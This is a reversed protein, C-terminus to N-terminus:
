CDDSTAASRCSNITSSIRGDASRASSCNSGRCCSYAFVGGGGILWVPGERDGYANLM